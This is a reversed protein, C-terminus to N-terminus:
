CNMPETYVQFTQTKVIIPANSDQSSNRDRRSEDTATRPTRSENTEDSRSMSKMMYSNGKNQSGSVYQSAAVTELNVTAGLNSDFASLFPKLYGFSAAMITYHLVFQTAIIANVLGFTYDSSNLGQRLYVLRVITPAIISPSTLMVGVFRVKSMGSVTYTYFIRVYGEGKCGLEDPAFLSHQCGHRFHPM